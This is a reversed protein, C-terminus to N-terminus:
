ALIKRYSTTPMDHGYAKAMIIRYENGDILEHIIDLIKKNFVVDYNDAVQWNRHKHYRHYYLTSKVDRMFTELILVNPRYKDEIDNIFNKMFKISIDNTTSYSINYASISYWLKWMGGTIHKGRCLAIIFSLDFGGIVEQLSHGGDMCLCCWVFILFLHAEHQNMQVGLNWILWFMMSGSGSLGCVAPAVGNLDAGFATSSPKLDCSHQGWKKFDHSAVQPLINKWTIGYYNESNKIKNAEKRGGRLPKIIRFYLDNRTKKEAKLPDDDHHYKVIYFLFDMWMMLSTRSRDKVLSILSLNSKRMAKKIDHSNTFPMIMDGVSMYKDIFFKRNRPKMTRFIKECLACMQTIVRGDNTIVWVRATEDTRTYRVQETM